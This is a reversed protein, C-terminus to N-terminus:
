GSGAMHVIGEPPTRRLEEVTHLRGPGCGAEAVPRPGAARVLEAFAALVARDLPLRDLSDRALDAYLDDSRSRDAPGNREPRSVAAEFLRAAGRYM